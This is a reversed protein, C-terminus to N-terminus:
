VLVDLDVVGVCVLQGGEDYLKDIFEQCWVDILGNVFGIDFFILDQGDELWIVNVVGGLNFVVVDSLGVKYVLVCYYFLVLFVGQGGKEM